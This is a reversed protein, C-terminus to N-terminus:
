SWKWEGNVKEFLGTQGYHFTTDYTNGYIDHTTSSLDYRLSLYEGVYEFNYVDYVQYTSYLTPYDQALAWLNNVYKFVIGGPKCYSLAQAFNQNSLAIYLGRVLNECIYADGGIDAPNPTVIGGNCGSLFLSLSLLLFVVAYFLKKNM